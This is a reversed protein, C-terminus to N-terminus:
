LCNSTMVNPLYCFRRWLVLPDNINAMAMRFQPVASGSAATGRNQAIAIDVGFSGGPSSCSSARIFESSIALMAASM